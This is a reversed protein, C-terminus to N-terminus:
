FVPTNPGRMGSFPPKVSEPALVHFKIPFVGLEVRGGQRGEGDGVWGKLGFM